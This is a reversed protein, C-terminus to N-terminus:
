PSPEGVSTVDSVIRKFERVLKDFSHSRSRALELDFQAALAPQDTVESYPRNMFKELYEKAGRVSEPSAPAIADLRIDRKGAISELAAVFWTEKERNAIVVASPLDPRARQAREKLRPGIECALDDDADLLVIIAGRAGLKRAALEIRRELEGPRVILQRPVRLPRRIEVACSLTDALRRLIIPFSSADGHGEVIPLIPTSTM